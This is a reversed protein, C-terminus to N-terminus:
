ATAELILSEVRNAWDPMHDAHRDVGVLEAHGSMGPECRVIQRFGARTLVERLTGEDYLHIHGFEHMMLNLAHVPSDADARQAASGVSRVFWRIYEQVDPDDSDPLRRIVDLDPTSIRLVGDRELVRHAESIVHLGAEYPVHEIMHECVVYRFSALPMPWRKTVNHYVVGRTVPVLDTCLWGDIVDRGCGISLRRKEPPVRNFYADLHRTQRVMGAAKLGLVATEYALPHRRVAAALRRIPANEAQETVLSM